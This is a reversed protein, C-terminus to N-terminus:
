RVHTELKTNNHTNIIFLLVYQRGHVLIEIIFNNQQFFILKCIILKIEILLHKIPNTKYQVELYCKENILYILIFAIIFFQHLINLYLM